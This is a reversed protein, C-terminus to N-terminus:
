SKRADRKAGLAFSFVLRFFLRKQMERQIKRVSRKNIKGNRFGGHNLTTNTTIFM